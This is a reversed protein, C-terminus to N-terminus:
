MIMAVVAISAAVLLQGVQVSSAGSIDTFEFKPFKELCSASLAEQVCKATGDGSITRSNVGLEDCTICMEPLVSFIAEYVVDSGDSLQNSNLSGDTEFYNLATKVIDGQTTNADDIFPLVAAAFAWVEAKNKESTGDKSALDSYKLVGQLLPIIMQKRITNIATQIKACQKEEVFELGANFANFAEYNAQAFKTTEESTSFDSARKEALTLHLAGDFVTEFGQVISGAYFAAGEDWAKAKVEGANCVKLASYLEYMTYMFVAQYQVGKVVLQKRAGADLAENSLGVNIFDDAYTDSGYYTKFMQLIDNGDLDETFKDAKTEAGTAELDLSFAQLKRNSSGKKSNEGQTYVRLAEVYNPTAAGVESSIAKVDLDIKLHESVDEATRYLSAIVQTDDALSSAALSLGVVAKLTGTIGM